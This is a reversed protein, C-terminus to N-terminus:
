PRLAVLYGASFVVAAICGWMWELALATVDFSVLTAVEVDKAAVPM